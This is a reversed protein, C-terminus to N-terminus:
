PSIQFIRRVFECNDDLDSFNVTFLDEGWFSYIKKLTPSDCIRELESAKGRYKMERLSIIKIINESNSKKDILYYEPNWLWKLM